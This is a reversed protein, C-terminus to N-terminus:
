DTLSLDQVTESGETIVVQRESNKLDTLQEFPNVEAGAARSATVVYRGPAINTVAYRGDAGSKTQYFNPTSGDTPRVHIQGGVLGKGSPDFLTGRLTGGRSLRVDGMKTDIGDNVVVDHRAFSTYGGAQVQVQYTEPTLNRITFSGDDATRVEASTANTPFSPGLSRTFEDDTWEKDHTTVRARAVPKGEGDVVRGTISGGAALRITIATVNKGQPM